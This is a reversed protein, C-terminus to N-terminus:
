ENKKPKSRLTQLDKKVVFLMNRINNQFYEESTVNLQLPSLFKIVVAIIECDCLACESSYDDSVYSIMYLVYQVPVKIKKKINVEIIYVHLCM